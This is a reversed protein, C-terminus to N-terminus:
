EDARERTPDPVADGANRASDAVPGLGTRGGGPDVADVPGAATLVGVVHDEVAGITRIGRAVAQNIKPLDFEDELTLALELLALSHFGLDEVLRAEASPSVAPHPALELVLARVSSRLREENWVAAAGDGFGNRTM